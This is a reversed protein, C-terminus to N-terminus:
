GFILSGIGMLIMAIIAGLIAGIIGYFILISGGILDDIFQNKIM